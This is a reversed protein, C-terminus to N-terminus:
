IKRLEVLLEASRRTGLARFIRYGHRLVVKLLFSHRDFSFNKKIEEVAEKDLTRFIKDLEERTLSYFLKSFHLGFNIERGINKKWLKEYRSLSGESFDSADKLVEAALKGSTIGFIVGGGTIPKIFGAAEGVILLNEAYTKNIIGLPIVDGTEALIESEIGNESVFKKLASKPSLTAGRSCLGVRCREGAPVQWAFFNRAYHTFYVDTLEASCNVELQYCSLIQDPKWKERLGQSLAIESRFGDAGILVKAEVEEIKGERLLKISWRKGKREVKVVRTSTLIEAGEDLANEGLGGDFAARDVVVAVPKSFSFEINEANSHLRASRIYSLVSSKYDIGLRELSKIGLVGTCSINGLEHHEEAVGVKFESALEGACALGAPGAGVIFM